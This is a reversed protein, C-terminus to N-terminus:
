MITGNVMHHTHSNAEERYHKWSYRIEMAANCLCGTVRWQSVCVCESVCMKQTIRPHPPPANWSASCM